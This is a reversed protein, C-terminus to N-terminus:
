THQVCVAGHLATCLPNPVALVGERLEACAAAHCGM